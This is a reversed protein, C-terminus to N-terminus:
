ASVVCIFQFIVPLALSSRTLTKVTFKSFVRSVCHLTTKIDNHIQINGDAEGDIGTCTQIAIHWFIYQSVM